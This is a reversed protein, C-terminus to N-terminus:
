SAKIQNRVSRLGERLTREIQRRKNAPIARGSIKLRKLSRELYIEYQRLKALRESRSLGDLAKLNRNASRVATNNSRNGDVELSVYIKSKPRGITGLLPTNIFDWAEIKLTNQDITIDVKATERGTNANIMAELETEARPGLQFMRTSNQSANEVVTELSSEASSVRSYEIGLGGLMIMPLALIAFIMAVNGREGSLFKDFLLM